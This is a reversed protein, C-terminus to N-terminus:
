YELDPESDSIWWSPEKSSHYFDKAMDELESELMDDELIYKESEMSQSDHTACCLWVTSGKKYIKEKSM